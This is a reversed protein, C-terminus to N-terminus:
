RAKGMYNRLERLVEIENLLQETVYEWYIGHPKQERRAVKIVRSPTVVYDVVLDYPERPIEDSVLQLEHVTTIIPTEEDVKGLESLIGWEFEAYGHSKGLRRGNGPNVAVSGVIVLDVRPIDWPKIPKGFEFAGAITSARHYM